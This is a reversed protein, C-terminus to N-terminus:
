NPQAYTRKYCCIAHHLRLALTQCQNMLSAGLGRWTKGNLLRYETALQNIHFICWYVSALCVNAARDRRFGVCAGRKHSYAKSRVRLRCGDIAQRNPRTEGGQSRCAVKRDSSLLSLLSTCSWSLSGRPLWAVQSVYYVILAPCNFVFVCVYM